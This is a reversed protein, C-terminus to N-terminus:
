AAEGQQHHTPHHCTSPDLNATLWTAIDPWSVWAGCSPCRAIDSDATM